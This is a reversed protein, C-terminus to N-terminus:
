FKEHGTEVMQQRNRFSNLAQWTLCKYVLKLVSKEGRREDKQKYAWSTLEKTQDAARENWTYTARTDRTSKSLRWPRTETTQKGQGGGSTRIWKKIGSSGWDASAWRQTRLVPFSILKNGLFRLSIVAICAHESLYYVPVRSIRHYKLNVLNSFVLLLKRNLNWNM